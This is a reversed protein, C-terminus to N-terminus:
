EEAFASDVGLMQNEGFPLPIADGSKYARTVGDPTSVNIERRRDDVTWFQKSGNELCLDRREAMEAVTNSPSLVEIVIDPAGHLADGKDAARYRERAVFAVDASRLEYEPLARFPMEVRVAGFAGLAAALLERLREQRNIHRLPPRSMKVLEGHHLEFYYPGPEPLERYQEVTMLGAISAM